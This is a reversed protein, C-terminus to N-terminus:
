EILGHSMLAATLAAIAARAEADIVTGGSPSPVGPQRASVVQQGGIRVAAAAVEGGNWASGTWHFWLGATKVWARLGPQPMVLRWGGGTWGAVMDPKGAWEGSAGSAAVIWCQGAQPSTPPAAQPPGEVAASMAIDIRALAENHYLEKQAQGPLIYPLCHRASADSM